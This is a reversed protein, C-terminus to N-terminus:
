RSRRAGVRESALRAILDARSAVAAASPKRADEVIAEVDELLVRYRVRGGEGPFAAVSAGRAELMRLVEAGPLGVVGAAARLSIRRGLTTASM